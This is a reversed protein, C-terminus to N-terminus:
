SSSARQPLPLHAPFNSSCVTVVVATVDDPKGGTGPLLGAARSAAAFPTDESRTYATVAAAALARAMEDATRRPREARMRTVLAAIDDDFLNDFLGDTAAVVVDGPALQVTFSKACDLPYAPDVRGIQYPFNFGKHQPPSHYAVAGGRLVMFGSDGISLVRLFPGDVAGVCATSTGRATTGALASKLVGQLLSGTIGCHSLEKIQAKCASM